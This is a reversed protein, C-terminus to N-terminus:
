KEMYELFNMMMQAVEARTAQGAPALVGNGRGGMIGNEVAWNLASVAYGSAQGADSFKSLHEGAEPAEVYKWLMTALQERTVPDNPGMRGDGYGSLVGNEVAWGIAKEYYSGKAVDTFLGTASSADPKGELSYLVVALMGRTMPVDPSFTNESTGSFLNREVVFDVAKESWHNVDHVDRFTKRGTEPKTVTSGSSSGGGGNSSRYIVVADNEEFASPSYYRTVTGNSSVEMSYHKMFDWLMPMESPYCNHPRLLGMGWQVMPVELSGVQKTWSYVQPHRSDLNLVQDAGEATWDQKIGNAKLFYKGWAQLNLSDLGDSMDSLDMQGTLLMTPISRFTEQGDLATPGPMGYNPDSKPIPAASTSGVAAFFEPNTMAFGQSAMSGASQGTGYVRSFDLDAYEGDIKEKLLTILSNYFKDSDAHSVSCPSANYTECIFALAIGEEEAVQWWLTSDMFISDTQTNGPFVILVPLEEGQFGEPIYLMYERPDAKGDGSNDSFAVVGVQVTGHDAIEVDECGWIQTGDSLTENVKGDKADQQAAVRAETYDLRYALANSYAFTNDYRTWQSLYAYLEGAEPIDGAAIKVESIGRDELKSNAYHTQYADSDISQVYVGADTGTTTCDNATQWYTESGTYNILVTPVPVDKPAIEGDIHVQELVKDLIATIDGNASVGDYAKGAVATLADSGASAGGMYAQSIVFIPNKAAWLELTSAGKGYGALYFEGYTSFVNQSNVNNGSKLFAIAADLYAAEEAPTGWGNAGPELVFLGEGKEDALDFWGNEELFDYTDVGDPVAVVTFYSRVSAEPAIYVKVTRGEAVTKTYYGTLPLQAAQSFDKQLNTVSDLDSIDVHFTYTSTTKGDQATVEVTIVSGNTVALNELDSQAAGDLTIGTIAAKTSMTTADISIVNGNANITYEYHWPNFKDHLTYNVTTEEGAWTMTSPAKWTLDVGELRGGEVEVNSLVSYTKYQQVGDVFNYNISSNIATDAATSNMYTAKSDSLYASEDGKIGTLMLSLWNTGDKWMDGVMTTRSYMKNNGGRLTYTTAADGNDIVQQLATEFNELVNHDLPLEDHGTYVEVVQVGEREYDAHTQQALSLLLDAPIGAVNVNDASGARTCGYIDTAFVLGNARDALMVLSDHHGPLAYVDFTCNGLDFSDGEDINKVLAQQSEAPILSKLSSWGRDNCYTPIGAKLFNAVQMDHDPHAHGVVLVYPKTALHEDVYEKLNWESSAQTFLADIVIGSESGEVYWAMPRLTEADRCIQYVTPSTADGKRIQTHQYDREEDTFTDNIPRQLHWRYTREASKVGDKVAVVKYTVYTDAYSGYDEKIYGDEDVTYIQTPKTVATEGENFKVSSWGSVNEVANEVDVEFDEYYGDLSVSKSVYITAGETPTWLKIYRRPAIAESNAIPLAQVPSVYDETMAEFAANWEATPIAAKEGYGETMLAAVEDGDVGFARSLMDIAEGYTLADQPRFTEAEDVVGQQLLCEIAMWGDSGEAVDDFHVMDPAWIDNYEDRHSWNFYEYIKEAADARNVYGENQKLTQVSSVAQEEKTEPGAALAGGCMSLLMAGTLLSALLRQRTKKVNVMGRM